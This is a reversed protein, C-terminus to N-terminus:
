DMQYNKCLEEWLVGVDEGGGVGVLEKTGRILIEKSYPHNRALRFRTPVLTFFNRPSYYNEM